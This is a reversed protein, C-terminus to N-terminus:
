HFHGALGIVDKADDVPLHYLLTLLSSHSTLPSFHPTNEYFIALAREDPDAQAVDRTPAPLTREEDHPDGQSDGHHHRNVQGVAAGAAGKAKGGVGHGALGGMLQEAPRGAQVLGDIALQAHLQTLAVARGDDFAVHDHGREIALGQTQETYVGKGLRGKAGVQGGVGM